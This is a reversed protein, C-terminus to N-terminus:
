REETVQQVLFVHFINISHDQKASVVLICTCQMSEITVNLGQIPLDADM